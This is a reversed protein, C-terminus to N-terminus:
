AHKTLCVTMDGPLYDNLTKVDRTLSRAFRVVDESVRWHLYDRGALMPSCLFNFVLSKATADFARRISEYFVEDEATNLSGSFVAVDAGIFMREPQAVFDVRLITADPLEKAEAAAALAQVAEIGVYDHPHIDHDVLYSLLDARGCGVDLISQGRLAVIRSIADFRAAQTAPSAWLLAGFGAGHAAAADLYPKLYPKEQEVVTV